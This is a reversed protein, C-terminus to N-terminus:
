KTTVKKIELCKANSNLYQISKELVLSFTMYLDIFKIEIQKCLSTEFFALYIFNQFLDQIPVHLVCKCPSSSNDNQM